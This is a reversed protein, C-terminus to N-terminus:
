TIQLASSLWLIARSATGVTIQNLEQENLLLSNIKEKVLSPPFTKEGGKVYPPINGRSPLFNRSPVLFHVLKPYYSGFFSCKHLGLPEGALFCDIAKRLPTTRRSGSSFEASCGFIRM